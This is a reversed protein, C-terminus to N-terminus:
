IAVLKVRESLKEAGETSTWVQGESWLSLERLEQVKPHNVAAGGSLPLDHPDFIRKRV